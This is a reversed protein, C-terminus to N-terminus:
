LCLSSFAQAHHYDYAFKSKAVAYFVRMTLM